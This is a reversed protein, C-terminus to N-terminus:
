LHEKDKAWCQHLHSTIRSLSGANQLISFHDGPVSIYEIKPFKNKAWGCRPFLFNRLPYEASVFITFPHTRHSAVYRVDAKVATRLVGNTANALRLGAAPGNSSNNAQDSYGGTGLLSSILRKWRKAIFPRPNRLNPAIKKIFYYYFSNPGSQPDLLGLYDVQEGREVLLRGIEYVVQCSFSYGLLRVKGPKVTDCIIDTYYKAIERVHDGARDWIFYGSPIYYVPIDKQIVHKIKDLEDFSNACIFLPINGEKGTAVRVVPVEPFPRDPTGSVSIRLDRAIEPFRSEFDFNAVTETTPPSETGQLHGKINRVFSGLTDLNLLTSATTLLGFEEETMAIMNIVSLSDGGIDFFSDDSAIHDIDLIRCWINKIKEFVPDNSQEREPPRLEDTLSGYLVKGNNGRKIESVVIIRSPVMYSPLDEKLDNRIKENVSETPAKLCIFAVMQPTNDGPDAVVAVDSVFNITAITKEVHALDIRYGRIKVRRDSRGSVVISGDPLLRGLDGTRYSRTYKSDGYLGASFNDQTSQGFGVYGCALRNNTVIVEGLGSGDEADKEITINTDSFARGVPVLEDDDHNGDDVSYYAVSGATETQSYLNIVKTEKSYEQKWFNVHGWRLPEGTLFVSKITALTAKKTGGDFSGIRKSAAYWVSPVTDWVTIRQAAILDGLSLPDQRDQASAIIQTAGKALPLLTQRISASFGFSAVNLFIDDSRLPLERSLIQLYSILATYSVVAGKPAASSGSTFLIYAADFPAAEFTISPAQHKSSPDPFVLPFVHEPLGPTPADQDTLIFSAGCHGLMELIRKAPTNPDIPLYTAGLKFLALIAVLWDTSRDMSVGVVSRSAVGNQLMTNAVHDSHADLDAFSLNSNADIGAPKRTGRKGTQGLLLNILAHNVAIPRLYNM